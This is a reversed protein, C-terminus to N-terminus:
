YFIKMTLLLRHKGFLRDFSLSVHTRHDNNFFEEKSEHVFRHQKCKREYSEKDGAVLWDIM